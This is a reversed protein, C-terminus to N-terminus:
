YLPTVELSKYHINVYELGFYVYIFSVISSEDIFKV